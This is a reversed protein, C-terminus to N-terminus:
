SREKVVAALEHAFREADGLDNLAHFSARVRGDGGWALVGRRALEAAVGEGDAVAVALNGARRAPDAPTIVNLGADRLRRDADAVIAAVHEEIREIGIDGLLASSAGLGAIDSLAPAGMQFRSADANWNLEEFRRDTFIDELSRWGVAGPRFDALLDRNWGVIGVGYPGLTWKYSASVVLAAHSLDMTSVGLSHSVDVLFPIGRERAGEGLASLDHKLGTMYGVHSVCLAVTREDCADLVSQSSMEWDDGRPVVRVDLGHERLRLFPAFVAPHEYENVVVNDGPRFAWGNAIASWATSADGLFAVDEARMGALRAVDARAQAEAGFLISRGDEARSKARYATVMADEVVRLAPAHAGTYLYSVDDSLGIFHDRPILARAGPSAHPTM